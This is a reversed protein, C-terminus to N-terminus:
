ADALQKEVQENEEKTLSFYFVQHRCRYGGRKEAFNQATTEQRWGSRTRAIKIMADIDKVRYTGARIAFKKFRGEANVWEVCNQRSDKILSGVYRFGDLQFADRITDNVAGDFGNIADTVVQSSYKKLLGGNGTGEILETLNKEAQDFTQNLRVADTIMKRIPNSLNANIASDAKLSDVVSDIVIQKELTLNTTVKRKLSRSYINKNLSEVKDFDTLFNDIRPVFASKRIASLIEKKLRLLLKNNAETQILKGEKQSLSRLITLVKTLVSKEIKEIGLLFSRESNDLFSLKEALLENITKQRSKAM